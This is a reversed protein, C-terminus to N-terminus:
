KNTIRGWLSDRIARAGESKIGISPDSYVATTQRTSYGYSALPMAFISTENKLSLPPAVKASKDISDFKYLDYKELKVRLNTMTQANFTFLILTMKSGNSNEYNMINKTEKSQYPKFLNLMSETYAANVDVLIQLKCDSIGNYILTLIREVALSPMKTLKYASGITTTQCNHFPSKDVKISGVSHGKHRLTIRGVICEESGMSRGNLEYEKWFAKLEKKENM